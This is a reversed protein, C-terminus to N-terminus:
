RGTEATVALSGSLRGGSLLKGSFTGVATSHKLLRDRLTGDKLNPAGSVVLAAVGTVFPAAMSTGSAFGYQGNPLTSLIEVGPAAIDVSEAGWNSFSALTEDPGLAAVSVVADSEYSSPFHPVQDTNVGDNGSACVFLIQERAATEIADELARSRETSGWSCNVVRINEGRNRMAVLYDICAIADSTTGGGSAGLFKLPMIRTTWNVGSVGVGNGGVAGIIGAVHTGHGMDDDPNGSRDIANFGHVDDVVGNRDDDVGNGPIERANTWLNDRLDEHDADIGSDIVAVIVDDSGHTVGWATRADIDVGPVGGPLGAVPQGTNELGWQEPYRADNPRAVTDVHWLGDLEAYEVRPDRRLRELAVNAMAPTGFDVVGMGALSAFPHIASGQPGPTTDAFPGPNFLENMLTGLLTGARAKVILRVPKQVDASMSWTPTVRRGGAVSSTQVSPLRSIQGAIAALAVVLSGAVLHVVPSRRM